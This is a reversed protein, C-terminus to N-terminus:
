KTLARRVERMDTKIEKIDDLMLKFEERSPFNAHEGKAQDIKKELTSIDREFTDLRQVQRGQAYQVSGYGIVGSLLFPGAWQLLTLFWGKGDKTRIM